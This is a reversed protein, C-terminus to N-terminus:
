FNEKSATDFTLFHSAIGRKYSELLSTGVRLHNVHVFYLQHVASALHVSVYAFTQLLSGQISQASGISGARGSTRCTDLSVSLPHICVVLLNKVSCALSGM